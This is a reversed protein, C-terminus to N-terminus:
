KIGHLEKALTLQNMTYGLRDQIALLERTTITKKAAIYPAMQANWEARRAQLVEFTWEEAFAARLLPREVEFNKESEAEFSSYGEGGENQVRDMARLRKSRTAWAAQHAALAQKATTM